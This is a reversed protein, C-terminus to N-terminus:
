FKILYIVAFNKPRTEQIGSEAITLEHDHVGSQEIKFGHLHEGNASTWYEQNDDVDGTMARRENRVKSTFWYGKAMLRHQHKGSSTTIGEHDHVGGNASHGIHTHQQYGDTQYSGLTREPDVQKDLDLGRLFIGRFDPIQFNEEQQEGYITKIAQYLAPYDAIAYTQGDCVLWGAALLKQRIQTNLEGAYAIVTGAPVLTEMVQEKREIIDLLNSIAQNMKEIKATLENKDQNIEKVYNFVAHDVNDLRTSLQVLNEAHQSQSQNMRNLTVQQSLNDDELLNLRQNFLFYIGLSAGSAGLLMAIIFIPITQKSM